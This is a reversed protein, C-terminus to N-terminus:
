FSTSLLRQPLASVVVVVAVSPCCTSPARSYCSGTGMHSGCPRAFTGLGVDVDEDVDVQLELALEVERELMTEKNRLINGIVM